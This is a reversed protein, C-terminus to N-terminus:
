PHPESLPPYHSSAPCQRSPLGPTGFAPIFMPTTLGGDHCAHCACGLLTFPPTQIPWQFIHSCPGCVKQTWWPKKYSTGEDKSCGEFSLPLVLTPISGTPKLQVTPLATAEALRQGTNPPEAVTELMAPSTPQSEIVAKTVHLTIPGSGSAKGDATPSQVATLRIRQGTRLQRAASSGLKYVTTGQPGSSHLFVLTEFVGDQLLPSAPHRSWWM